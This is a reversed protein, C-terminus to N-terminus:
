NSPANLSCRNIEARKEGLGSQVLSAGMEMGVQVLCRDRCITAPIEMGMDV